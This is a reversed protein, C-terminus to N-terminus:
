GGCDEEYYDNFDNYAKDELRRLREDEQAAKRESKSLRNSCTSLGTEEDGRKDEGGYKGCTFCRVLQKAM